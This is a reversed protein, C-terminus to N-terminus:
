NNETSNADYPTYKGSLDVNIVKIKSDIYDGVDQIFLKINDEMYMQEYFWDETEENQVWLEHIDFEITMKVKM